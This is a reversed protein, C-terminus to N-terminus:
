NNSVKDTHSFLQINLQYLDNSDPSSYKANFQKIFDFIAQKAESFDEPKIKLTNGALHREEITQETVSKLSQSIMGKHHNRIASSPIDNTTVFGTKLVKLKGDDTEKILKLDILSRITKKIQFISVNKRLRKYIWDYDYVFDPTDILQKIVLAYWDSITNFEQLSIKFCSESASIKDLEKLIKTTNRKEKKQKELKVLLKLYRGEKRTLKLDDILSDLMIESPLRQGKLVMTLSSASRYGLRTAWNKLNNSTHSYMGDPLGKSILFDRYDNFDFIKVTNKRLIKQM